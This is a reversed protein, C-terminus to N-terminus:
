GHFYFIGHWSIWSMVLFGKKGRQPMFPQGRVVLNCAIRSSTWHSLSSSQTVGVSTCLCNNCQLWTRSVPPSAPQNFFDHNAHVVMLHSHAQVTFSIDHCCTIYFHITYHLHLAEPFLSIWSCCWVGNHLLWLHWPGVWQSAFAVLSWLSDLFFM